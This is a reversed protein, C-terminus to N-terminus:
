TLRDLRSRQACRVNGSVDFGLQKVQERLGKEAIEHLKDLTLHADQRCLTVCSRQVDLIAEYLDKQAASFKGSVPWTRTIDAIYGGYEGGADVLALQGAQLVDDNRVYHISLANRGGAVVPVYASTKCGQARFRYEMFAALEHEQKFDQRMAATFARGSAQGATRMNSVEAASKIVRLENLLPRLPRVKKARLLKSLGEEEARAGWFFRAFTSTASAGSALDTYVQGAEAIMEPLVDPLSNM